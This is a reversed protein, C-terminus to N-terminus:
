AQPQETKERQGSAADPEDAAAPEAEAGSEPEEAAAPEAEAGSEPEEAAEAEAEAGTGPEEAAQACPAAECEAAEAEGIPAAEEGAAEAAPSEDPAPEEGPEGIDYPEPEEPAAAGPLGFRAAKGANEPDLKSRVAARLRRMLLAFTSPERSEKEMRRRQAEEEQLVAECEDCVAKILDDSEYEIQDVCYHAVDSLIEPTIPQRVRIGFIIKGAVYDLDFFGQKGETIRKKNLDALYKVVGRTEKTMVSIPLEARVFVEEGVARLLIECGTLRCGAELEAHYKYVIEVSRAAAINNEDLFERIMSATDM